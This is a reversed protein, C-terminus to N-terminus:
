SAVRGSGERYRLASQLADVFFRDTRLRDLGDVLALLPRVDQPATLAADLLRAADPDELMALVEDRTSTGAQIAASARRLDEIWAAVVRTLVQCRRRRTLARQLSPLVYNRMRVSGRRRLRSLPDALAPNRLRELVEARYADLDIGAVPDLLPQIEDALLREVTAGLVPDRMAADTSEHATEAGLYGLAVHAANLMSMKMHVYPRVDTVVHVGVEELAPRDTSFRDEVVWHSFPETVVPARDHIGFARRLLRRDQETSPPTIRDVMSNPCAVHAEVWRALVPSRRWAAELLCRRTTDGNAPLNDCSLVTFPALGARRREDLAAALLDFTAAARGDTYSPATVTLTVLRTSPASLAALTALPQEAASLYGRLAGVVRAHPGDNGLELVTYLCDQASLEARLRCRRPGVGLIGWDRSVGRSALEDFYVAQHARHFAGVGVHVVGPRLTSVDYAPRRVSAPLAHLTSASLSQIVESRRGFEV